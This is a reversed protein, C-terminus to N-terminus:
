VSLWAKNLSLTYLTLTLTANPYNGARLTIGGWFVRWPLREVSTLYALLDGYRGELIIQVRHKYLLSFRGAEKGNEDELDAIPLTKMAVLRLNRNQGLLDELLKDMKDPTVLNHQMGQLSADLGAMKQRLAELMRRNEEDPDIKQSAELARIQADIEAARGKSERVQRSLLKKEQSVQSLFLADAFVFLMGAAMAFVLLRERLSLADFRKALRVLHGKM